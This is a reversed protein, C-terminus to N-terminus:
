DLWDLRQSSYSIFWQNISQNVLQNLSRNNIPIWLNEISGHWNRHGQTVKFPPVLRASNKQCIKLHIRKCWKFLLLWIRYSAWTPIPTDAYKQPNPLAANKDWPASGLACMQPLSGRIIGMCDSMSYGFDAQCCMHPLPTNEASIGNCHAVRNTLSLPAKQKTWTHPVSKWSM